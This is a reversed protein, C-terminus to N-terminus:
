CAGDDGLDLDWHIWACNRNFVVYVDGLRSVKEGLERNLSHARDRLRYVVRDHRTSNFIYATRFAADACLLEGRRGTSRSRFPIGAPYM